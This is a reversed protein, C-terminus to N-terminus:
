SFLKYFIEVAQKIDKMSVDLHTVARIKMYSGSSLLVGNSKLIKLIEDPTKGTKEIGIIVINTQVTELDIDFVKLKAIEEAFFKAKEHDEKLREINHKIAYIGAAALIGVQRMGGGFIKRYRRVKEIFERDGAVVSGVPAGLGKSLCVLVSDFYQAYEKPSIGTAVCANWLRAGDLHMKIGNELAFERIRKIEEIPFITGGARNHTNELCILRTRPMYYASPRIARKIQEVTIVGHKGQIPYLQVGSLMSPAATEYNMIHSEAEVIVEDGPETHAKIATQNGMVGSPVFLAAEKGLIKAVMDQLENVTPDEGFVDDGVEAEMMFKRMEPSPKTVTDSRLDIYKQM